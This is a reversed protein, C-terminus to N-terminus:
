PAEPTNGAALWDQYDNSMWMGEVPINTELGNEDIFLVRDPVLVGNADLIQKYRVVM